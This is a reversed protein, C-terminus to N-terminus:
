LLVIFLGFLAAGLAILSPLVGLKLFRLFTFKVEHSKLLGMWMMGALAGIPTLFAGLNSGIISAYVAPLAITDSAYSTVSSFLVSMPINNIFNSMLFSSLGYKLIPLSDSFVAGLYQ